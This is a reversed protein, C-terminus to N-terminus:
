ARGDRPSPPSGFDFVQGSRWAGKTHAVLIVAGVITTPVFWVAQMCIAFALGAERGVGFLALASVGLWQYTGVFGPSSPIAVGLNLAATVFIADVVSLEVGVARGVLIAAVAWTSWAAISIGFWVLGRRASLPDALGELTDRLFRRPLGRHARRSRPRRRTYSRAALIVIWTVALVFLSGVVIRDVWGQDTVLPLSVLLFAVLALIDFARDLVVTALGRGGSYAGRSVWRARLLDGVRGPLVNNVAVGAVVMEFFRTQSLRTDAIRRWRAAQLWYVVGMCAVAGLLPVVKVDQLTKWVTGLDTGRIALVLFVVSVPIGVAAAIWLSRSRGNVPVDKARPVAGARPVSSDPVVTVSSADDSTVGPAM